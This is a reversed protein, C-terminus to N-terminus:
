SIKSMTTISDFTYSTPYLDKAFKFEDFIAEEAYCTTKKGSSSPDNVLYFSNINQGPYAESITKLLSEAEEVSDTNMLSTTIMDALGSDNMLVSTAAFYSHSYGPTSSSADIIHCRLLYSGDSQKVYYYQNYYGSTSMNFTGDAQLVLDSSNLNLDAYFGERSAEYYYPNAITLNWGTGDPKGSNCKVSSAGSNILFSKEPYKDAFLETAEGKGFGGLTLSPKGLDIGFSKAASVINKAEDTALYDDIRKIPLFSVGRTTENFTLSSVLEEPTPTTKVGHAIWTKPPDIFIVRRQNESDIFCQKMEDTYSDDYTISASIYSDWISSLNGIGINFKGKVTSCFSVAEKLATFLEQDLIVEKGSGYSDNLVKVNNILGNDDCYNNHRDFLAHYRQFADSFSEEFATDRSAASSGTPYAVYYKIVASTDFPDVTYTTGVKKVGNEDSIHVKGQYPTILAAQSTYTMYSFASASSNSQSSSVIGCSSLLSSLVILLYAKKLHKNM